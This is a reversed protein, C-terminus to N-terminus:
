LVLFEKVFYDMKKRNIQKTIFLIPHQHKYRDIM